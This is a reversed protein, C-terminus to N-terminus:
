KPKIGMLFLVSESQEGEELGPIPTAIKKTKIWNTENHKQIQKYIVLVLPPPNVVGREWRSITLTHAFLVQAMQAQTLGLNNRISILEEADM